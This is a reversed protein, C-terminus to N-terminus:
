SGTVSHTSTDRRLIIKTRYRHKNSRIAKLMLELIERNRSTNLLTIHDHIISSNSIGSDKFFREIETKLEKKIDETVLRCELLSHYPNQIGSTCICLPTDVDKHRTRYLFGNMLNNDYFHSLLITEIERSTQRPIPLKECNVLPVNGYGEDMYCNNVKTQWVAETYKKITLKSYNCSRGSLETYKSTDKSSIISKDAESFLNPYMNVKWQLFKFVPSLESKLIASESRCKKIDDVLKDWKTKKINLKLYKISKM